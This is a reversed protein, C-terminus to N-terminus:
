LWTEPVDIRDGPKLEIDRIKGTKVQNLNIKIIKRQDSTNRIIKTRNPAAFTNFGGAMICANLATIGPLFDYAGPQKVEGQLYIKSEALDLSGKLPIYVVDGPQLPLNVRMDGKEILQRLDVKV